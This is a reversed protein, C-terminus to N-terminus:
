KRNSAISLDKQVSPPLDWFTYALFMEPDGGWANEDRFGKGRPLRFRFPIHIEWEKSFHTAPVSFLVGEGPLVTHISGVESMTDPPPIVRKREPPREGETVEVGRSTPVALEYMVTLRDDPTDAPAGNVQLDIPLGCNNQFRLWVRQKRSGGEPLGFGVHDVSLYVMPRTPEVLFSGPQISQGHASLSLLTLCLLLWRASRHITM